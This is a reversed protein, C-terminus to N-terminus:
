FRAIHGRFRQGNIKLNGRNSQGDKKYGRNIQQDIKYGRDFRDM